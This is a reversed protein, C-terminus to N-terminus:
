VICIALCYLAVRKAARKRDPYSLDNLLPDVIFASGVPNVAPFLSLFGIFITHLFPLDFRMSLIVNISDRCSIAPFYNKAAVGRIDTYKPWPGRICVPEAPKPPRVIDIM